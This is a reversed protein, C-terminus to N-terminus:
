DSQFLVQVLHVAGPTSEEISDAPIYVHAAFPKTKSENHDSFPSM